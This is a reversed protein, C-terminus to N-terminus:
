WSLLLGKGPRRPSAATDIMPGQRLFGNQRKRKAISYDDDFTLARDLVPELGLWILLLL